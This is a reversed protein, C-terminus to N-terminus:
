NGAVLEAYLKESVRTHEDLSYALSAERCAAGLPEEDFARMLKDGMEEADYPDDLLYPRMAEPLVEAAGARAAFEPGGRAPSVRTSM